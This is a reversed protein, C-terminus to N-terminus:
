RRENMPMPGEWGIEAFQRKPHIEAHVAAGLTVFSPLLPSIM